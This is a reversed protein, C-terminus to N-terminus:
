HIKRKKLVPADPSKAHSPKTSFYGIHPGEDATAVSRPSPATSISFDLIEPIDNRAPPIAMIELLEYESQDLTDGYKQKVM